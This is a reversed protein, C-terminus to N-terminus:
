DEVERMIKLFDADSFEGDSQEHEQIPNIEKQSIIDSHITNKQHVPDEDMKDIKPTISVASAAPEHVETSDHRGTIGNLREKVAQRRFQLFEDVSISDKVGYQLFMHIMDETKKDIDSM